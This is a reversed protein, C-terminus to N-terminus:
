VVNNKDDKYISYNYELTKECNNKIFILKIILYIIYFGLLLFISAFLILIYNHIM